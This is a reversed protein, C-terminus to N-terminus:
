LEPKVKRLAAVADAIVKDLADDQDITGGLKLANMDTDIEILHIPAEGEGLVGDSKVWEDDLISTRFPENLIILHTTESYYDDDQYINAYMATSWEQSFGTVSPLTVGATIDQETFDGVYAISQNYPYDILGSVKGYFNSVLLDTKNIGSYIIDRDMEDTAAGKVVIDLISPYTAQLTKEIGLESAISGNNFSDLIRAKLETNTEKATTTAFALPNRVRVPNYTSFTTQNIVNPDVAYATGTDEAEVLIDNTAYLPFETNNLFMQARTTTHNSVTYFKLGGETAVETNAPINVTLPQAFYLRVNGQVKAGSNRTILFNAAIADMDDESIDEPDIMSFADLLATQEDGFPQLISSLPNILIDRNASGPLYDADPFVAKLRRIVYEVYNM